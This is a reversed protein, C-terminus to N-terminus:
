RIDFTCTRTNFLAYWVIYLVGFMFAVISFMIRFVPHESANCNWSLYAAYLSITMSLVFQIATMVNEGLTARNEYTEKSRQFFKTALFADMGTDCM